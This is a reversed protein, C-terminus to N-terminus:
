QILIFNHVPQSEGKWIMEGYSFRTRIASRTRVANDRRLVRDPTCTAHQGSASFPTRHHLHQWKCM